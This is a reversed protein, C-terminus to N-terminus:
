PLRDPCGADPCTQRRHKRPLPRHLSLPSQSESAGDTEDGRTPWSPRRRESVTNGRARALATNPRPLYARQLGRVVVPTESSRCMRPTGASLAPPCPRWSSFATAEGRVQGPTLRLDVNARPERPDPRERTDYGRQRTARVVRRRPAAHSPESTRRA